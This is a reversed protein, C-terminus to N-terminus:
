LLVKKVKSLEVPLRKIVNTSNKYPIQVCLQSKLSKEYRFKCRNKLRLVPRECSIKHLLELRFIIEIIMLPYKRNEPAM